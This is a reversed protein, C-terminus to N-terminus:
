LPPCHTPLPRNPSWLLRQHHHNQFLVHHLASKQNQTAPAPTHQPLPLPFQVQQTKALPPEPTPQNSAPITPLCTTPGLIPSTTPKALLKPGNWISSWEHASGFEIRNSKPAVASESPTSSDSKM